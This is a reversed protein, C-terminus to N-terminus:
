VVSSRDLLCVGCQKRRRGKFEECPLDKRKTFKEKAPCYGRLVGLRSRRACDKCYTKAKM